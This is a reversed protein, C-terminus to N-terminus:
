VHADLDLFERPSLIRVGRYTYQPFHKRNGTILLDAKVAFAIDLYIVDDPDPLLDPDGSRVEIEIGTKLMSDRIADLKRRYKRLHAYRSVAVYEELTQKSFYWEHFRIVRDLVQRCAGGSSIAASVLVNCDIVIRM